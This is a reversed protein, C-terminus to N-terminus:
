RSPRGKKLKLYWEREEDTIQEPIRITVFFFLDGAAGDSRPLGRGKLRLKQGSQTGPPITLTVPGTPTPVEIRDGLAAQHDLVPLDAELDFAKPRFIPHPLIRIRLYLDGPRGGRAGRGGQGALRIRSGDTLGKPITVTLDRDTVTVGQGRCRPCPQAQTVVRSRGRTTATMVTGEGGCDGCVESMALRLAKKGGAVLEDISLGLEYDVDQGAAPRSPGGFGFAEGSPGHQRGFFTEFFDGLDIDVSQGRGAGRDAYRSAFERDREIQEWNAGMEDYKKRKAPDSLVEHAENVEKFKTEAKKDGPNLDPHLTRALKRYANKIEQGSADKAVKLIKYYDKFEM